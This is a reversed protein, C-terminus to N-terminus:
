ATERDYHKNIKTVLEKKTEAYAITFYRDEIVEAACWRIAYGELNWIRMEKKADKEDDYEGWVFTPDEVDYIEVWKVLRRFPENRMMKIRAPIVLEANCKDCCRENRIPLASNGFGIENGCFCCKNEKEM